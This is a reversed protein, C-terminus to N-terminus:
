TINLLQTGLFPLMGNKEMEMTFKVSFHCHNLTELFKDASTKDSMITLTEDVYRRGSYYSPMKGEHELTEDISCMFANALLPGLPSGMVVGDTQEYLQGNFLFLAAFFSLSKRNLQWSYVSPTAIPEGSPGKSALIKIHLM